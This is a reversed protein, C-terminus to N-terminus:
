SGTAACRTAAGRRRRHRPDRRLDGRAAPLAHGRGRRPHRVAAGAPVLRGDGLGQVRRHGARRPGLAAPHRPPRAADARPALADVKCTASRASTAARRSRSARAAGSSPASTPSRRSSPSSRRLAARGHRRRVRQAERPQRQHDDAIAGDIELRVTAGEDDMGRSRIAARADATSSDPPRGRSRRERRSTAYNRPVTATSTSATRPSGTATATRSRAGTSSTRTRTARCARRRPARECRGAVLAARTVHPLVGAPRSRDDAMMTDFEPDGFRGNTGLHVVIISRCCGRTRTRSCAGPDRERVAPERGRRRGHGSDDAQLAGRAGLMVSDGIGLVGQPIAPTAHTSRDDAHDACHATTSPRRRRRDDRHDHHTTSSSLTQRAARRAGGVPARGPRRKEEAAQNAIGHIKEQARAGRERPRHRSRHRAALPARGGRRRPDRAPAPGRGSRARVREM